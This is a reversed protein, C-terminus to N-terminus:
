FHPDRRSAHHIGMIVVHQGDGLVRYFIRYRAALTERVEGTRTRQYVAGLYPSGELRRVQERIAEAVTDVADPERWTLYATIADLQRRAAITWSIEAAM